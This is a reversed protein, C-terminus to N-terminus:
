LLVYKTKNTLPSLSSKIKSGDHKTVPVTNWMGHVYNEHRTDIFICIIREHYTIRNKESFLAMCHVDSKWNHTLFISQAYM